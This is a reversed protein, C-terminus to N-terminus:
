FYFAVQLVRVNIGFSDEVSAPIAGGFSLLSYSSRYQDGLAFGALGGFEFVFSKRTMGLGLLVIVAALVVVLLAQFVLSLRRKSGDDMHFAHNFLSDAQTSPVVSRLESRRHFFVLLHGIVLSASTAALFGYFGFQPTVYVDLASENLLQLHYRFAVLM